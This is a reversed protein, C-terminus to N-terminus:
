IKKYVLKRNRITKQIFELNMSNETVINVKTGLGTELDRIFHKVQMPDGVRDLKVCFDYDCGIEGKVRPGIMFIRDAGYKKAVTSVVKQVEEFSLESSSDSCM